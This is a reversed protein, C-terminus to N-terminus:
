KIQRWSQRGFGSRGPNETTVDIGPGNGGAQTGSAYKVERDGQEGGISIAVTSANGVSTKKGSVPITVEEQDGDGDNDVTVTVYEDSTFEGDNNLDFPSFDLQSGDRADLEMLWSTGGATCPDGSPILTTFIIRHNRLVSNTIQKEGELIGSPPVLDIYWGMDDSWNASFNSTV